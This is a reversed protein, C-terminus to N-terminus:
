SRVWDLGSINVVDVQDDSAIRGKRRFFHKAVVVVDRNTGMNWGNERRVKNVINLCM